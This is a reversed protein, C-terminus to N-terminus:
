LPVEAHKEQMGRRADGGFLKHFLGSAASDACWIEATDLDFRLMLLDPDDRGGPYWAAVDQSWYREVIAPDSELALTGDICAFLDHGKAVFQAMAPGGTALRNGKSSYFWFCHNANADLQATMPMAHDQTGQLSVMLFPSHSLEKWFRDRIETETSM